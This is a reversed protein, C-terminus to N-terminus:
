PAISLTAIKGDRVTFQYRLLVPSGPFNGSVQATAITQIGTPVVGAVEAHLPRYKAIADDMWSKIAAGRYEHAEDSVVADTTFLDMVRETMGTNHAQFFRAIPDPLGTDM